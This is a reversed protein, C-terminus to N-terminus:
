FSNFHNNNNNNHKAFEDWTKLSKVLNVLKIWMIDVWVREEWEKKGWFFGFELFACEEVRLGEWRRLKEGKGM